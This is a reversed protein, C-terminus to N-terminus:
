HDLKSRIAVVTATFERSTATTDAVLADAAAIASPARSTRPALALLQGRYSAAIAVLRRHLTAVSPPPKVAALGSGFRKIADALLRISHALAARTRPHVPLRLEAAALKRQEIVLRALYERAALSHPQRPNHLLGDTGACGAVLVATAVLLALQRVYASV